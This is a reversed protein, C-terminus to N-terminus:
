VMITNTVTTINTMSRHSSASPLSRDQTSRYRSDAITLMRSKISPLKAQTQRENGHSIRKSLLGVCNGEHRLWSRYRWISIM